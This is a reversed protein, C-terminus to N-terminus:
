GVGPVASTGARKGLARPAARVVWLARGFLYEREDEFDDRMHYSSSSLSLGAIATSSSEAGSCLMGMRWWPREYARRGDVVFLWEVM